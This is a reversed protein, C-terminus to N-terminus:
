APSLRRAEARAAGAFVGPMLRIKDLSDVQEDPPEEISRATATSSVAHARGSMGGDCARSCRSREADRRASASACRGRCRRAARAHRACCHRRGHARAAAADADRCDVLLFERREALGQQGARSGVLARACARRARGLLAQSRPARQPSRQAARARALVAEITLQALSYPPIVRACCSRDGRPDAILAGCRAGALAHAKSLTRLVVLTSCRELWRPSARRPAFEVYAEDVVVVASGDLARACREIAGADLRNGTPNNPSCLFM